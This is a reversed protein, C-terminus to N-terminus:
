HTTAAVRSARLSATTGFLTFALTTGLVMLLPVTWAGTADHAWGVVPPGAAAVVYGGGQVFASMRASQRESRSARVIAVFLSALGGGQAVGGVVSGLLWLHPALLLLVPLSMWLLGVLGVTVWSPLARALAPVGIAGGIACIQFISSAAGAGAQGLGLDDHLISPLWATVTYYSTSQGAFAVLLLWALPNRWTSATPPAAVAVVSEEPLARPGRVRLYTTWGALGVLALLGWVLLAGRWGVADALPATALSVTMSGINMVAVYAGTVLGAQDAPVDRRILVPVVINGVTIGLGIVLTGLAVAAFPGASRVVAGAAVSGLCLALALDAGLRRVVLLALPAGLGFCLVPLSTLLGLTAGGIGLDGRVRSAIPAVAVFPGRFHYASLLLVGVFAWPVGRAPTRPV